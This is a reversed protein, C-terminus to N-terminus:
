PVLEQGGTMLMREGRQEREPEEEGLGAGLLAEKWVVAKVSHWFQSHNLSAYFSSLEVSYFCQFILVSVLGGPPSPNTLFGSSLTPNAQLASPLTDWALHHYLRLTSTSLLKADEPSDQLACSAALLYLTGLRDKPIICLPPLM